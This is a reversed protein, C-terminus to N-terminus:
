VLHFLGIDTLFYFLKFSPADGLLDTLDPSPNNFYKIRFNSYNPCESFIHKISLITDCSACKPPPEGKLLHNHTFYTHGIRLRTLKVAINRHFNTHKFGKISPQICHLKNHVQSDWQGQWKKHIFSKITQNIDNLPVSFNEKIVSTKAARDVQENGRIGVHGPIWCFNIDHGNTKLIYILKICQIVFPHSDRSSYLLAEVSSKSDTYIIWKKIDQLEITHLAKLIAYIEATFVSCYDHLKEAITLHNFVVASGVHNVTKSGDTFVAEYTSFQQRHSYFLQLYVSDPTLSKIQKSFDDIVAINRETWPPTEEEKALIDVNEMDLDEILFRMRHGFSPTYSKKNSYFTGFLPHLVRDYIPHESDGKIRFYYKLSLTQRRFQLCPVGCIVYLSHVPSTRFAGSALRLGLHHVPDLIQLVSKSASGYIMCGYDLKSLILSKYIKLLSQFDAGWSTNSLIKLLNLTKVCKQKINLIHPKFTLKEDFIIGLFKAESVVPIPTDGLFIEPHPHIGRIKCFHVCSTKQNSIIFGNKNAWCTITRVATQLQREIFSMNVSACYIQLDDVYLSSHVYQPLHNIIGNLKIIFLIVSLVSGQPVGEYQQFNQSLIDGIRVQFTRTMLFNKIFIPLKGRFGMNYMDKLIGSRWTRDYAKDMDFFVSVLHKKTVFADRIATELMLVNDITGRGYRFGSQFNSLFGNEELVHMLRANVMREMLKCLCSTLAIPRYSTPIQPDKGPKPIPIVVAKRWTVPFYEELWISTKPISREAGLIHKTVTETASDIDDM